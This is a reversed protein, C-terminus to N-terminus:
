HTRVGLCHVTVAESSATANTVEVLFEGTSNAPIATSPDNPSITVGSGGDVQITHTSDENNVYFVYGSGVVCGPISAVINAATDTVDIRNATIEDGTGRRILGGLMETASYTDVGDTNDPTVTFKRALNGRINGLGDFLYNSVGDFSAMDAGDVGVGIELSRLADSTRYGYIKLEKTEGETANEFLKVNRGADQNIGLDGYLADIYSRNSDVQLRLNLSDSDWLGFQSITANGKPKIAVLTNTNTGEDTQFIFNGDSTKFYADTGDHTIAVTDSNQNVTVTGANWTGATITGVTALSSASTLNGLTDIAAEITTETTADLADINQLTLTGSSDSFPTSSGIIFGTGGSVTWAAVSNAGDLTLNGSLDITRNGANVKVKLTRDSTDNEDWSWVLYNSANTDPVKFSTPILVAATLTGEVTVNDEFTIPETVPSVPKITPIQGVSMFTLGAVFLVLFTFKHLFNKM